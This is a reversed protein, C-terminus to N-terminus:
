RVRAKLPRTRFERAPVAVLPPTVVVVPARRVYYPYVVTPYSKPYLQYHILHLRYYPDYSPVDAVYPDYPDYYPDHAQASGSLVAVLVSLAVVTLLTKLLTKV